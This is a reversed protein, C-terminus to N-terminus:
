KYKLINARRINDISRSAYGLYLIGNKMKIGEAEMYGTSTLGLSSLLDIDAIAKVRTRQSIEKGTMYDFVTVFANSPGKSPDNGNAEGEHFYLRGDSVDFGQFDYSNLESKNENPKVTFSALPSLHELNKVMIKYVISQEKDGEEGGFTIKPLEELTEELAKVESLRYVYFYRLPDEGGSTTVALIDNEQDIAPHINTKGPLYYVEGEQYSKIVKNPEYKVRSFAVNSGYQGDSKKHGISNIWIYRDDGDEEVAFNTGHGHYWLEMLSEFPQNAEGKLVFIKHALNGGVQNYFIAGKSDVDISQIVSNRELQVGQSYIIEASLPKNLKDTLVSNFVVVQTSINNEGDATVGSIEVVGSSRGYVDGKENITAIGENGSKWQVGLENKEKDYARGTSRYVVNMELIEGENVTWSPRLFTILYEDPTLVQTKEEKNCSVALFFTVCFFLLVVGKLNEM